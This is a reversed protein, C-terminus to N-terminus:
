REKHIIPAHVACIPMSGMRNKLNMEMQNPYRLISLWNEFPLQSESDPIDKSFNAAVLINLYHFTMYGPIM